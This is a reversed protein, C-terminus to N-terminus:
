WFHLSLSIFDPAIDASIEEIKEQADGGCRLRRRGAVGGVSM